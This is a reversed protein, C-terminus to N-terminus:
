IEGVHTPDQKWDTSLVRLESSKKCPLIIGMGAMALTSASTPAAEMVTSLSFLLGCAIIDQLIFSMMQSPKM